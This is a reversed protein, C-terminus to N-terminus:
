LTRLNSNQFNCFFGRFNDTGIKLKLLAETQLFRKAVKNSSFDTAYTNRPFKDFMEFVKLSLNESWRLDLINHIFGRSGSESATVRPHETIKAFNVPFYRHQLRKKFTAGVFANKQSDQSIKLFLKKFLVESATEASPNTISGFVAVNKM